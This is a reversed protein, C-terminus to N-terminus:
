KPMLVSNIIHVVGNSAEIDPKIVKVGSITIVGDPAIKVTLNEGQVTKLVMGDKLDKSTKKADVIHVTLVKKLDTTNKMLAKLDVNSAKFADNDPAFITFPGTGNLMDIIGATKILDVLQSLNKDSAATGVVNKDAAMGVGALIMSLALFMAIPLAFKM